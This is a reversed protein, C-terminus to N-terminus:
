STEDREVSAVRTRAYRAPQAKRRGLQTERHVIYLGTAAVVGAGILTNTEPFLGFIVVDFGLAWLMASYEFPALVSIPAM